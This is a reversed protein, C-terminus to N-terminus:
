QPQPRRLQIPQQVTSVPRGLEDRSNFGIMDNVRRKEVFQRVITVNYGQGDPAPEAALLVQDPMEGLVVGEKKGKNRYADLAQDTNRVRIIGAEEPQSGGLLERLRQNTNFQGAFALALAAAVMWGGWRRIRSPETRFGAPHRHVALDVSEAVDGASAVIMELARQDRQAMALERWVGPDRAASSELITWEDQSARGDVIRSILLDRDVPESTSFTPKDTKDTKDTM